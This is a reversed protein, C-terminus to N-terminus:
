GTFRLGLRLQHAGASGPIDSGEISSATPPPGPNSTSANGTFTAEGLDVYRYGVDFMMGPSAAFSFGGGIHWALGTEKEAFFTGTFGTNTSFTLDDADVLGGGVGGGIYPTFGGTDAFDYYLSVFAAMVSADAENTTFDGQTFSQVAFGTYIDASLEARLNGFRNGFAAEFGVAQGMDDSTSATAGIRTYLQAQAEPAIAVAGLGAISALGLLRRIM